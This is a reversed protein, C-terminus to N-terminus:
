SSPILSPVLSPADGEPGTPSALRQIQFAAYAERLRPSIQLLVTISCSRVTSDWEVVWEGLGLLADEVAGYRIVQGFNPNNRITFTVSKRSPIIATRSWENHIMFDGRGHAGMYHRFEQLFYQVVLIIEGM